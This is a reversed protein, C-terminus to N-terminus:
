VATAGDAASGLGDNVADAVADDVLLSIRNWTGDWSTQRLFADARTLRETSNEAMAAVCARVFGPVDDAIRVLGLRGYPRVVDRISTSVVPKGAALYEPTKTPSIFRTAENRAFPLLAVDWGAVYHPLEAYQKSGLYHINPRRPLSMRDIKVVPGLMVLQWDPRAAAVGDILALDMREDIVGFFGLRPHAIAAQDPPDVAIQRAQAFHAADVSSPFPHINSHRDRKAEYLSQGGTLVLTARRMLAAERTKLAAPAGKFASLEDMCDYVVALPALHDSFALAMPTYYWLVYDTISETAILADLLERQAAVRRASRFGDPIEPVVVTVSASRDIQLRPLAGPASVPEEVFFVRRDRACRTMLHQPRQFVFNWRLHSFCIVDAPRVGDIM